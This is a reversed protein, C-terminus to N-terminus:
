CTHQTRLADQHTNWPESPAHVCVTERKHSAVPCIVLGRQRSADTDESALVPRDVEMQIGLARSQVRLGESAVRREHLLFTELRVHEKHQAAALSLSLRMDCM